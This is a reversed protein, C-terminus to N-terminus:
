AFSPTTDSVVNGNVIWNTGDCVLSVYTGGAPTVVTLTVHSSGNPYVAGIEDSAAGANLDAWVVGGKLFPAPSTFVWNQADAAVAKGIFNYELGAAAAPLTLTCSATLDPLIHTKGSDAALVTYTAADTVSVVGRTGAAAANLQAATATIGIGNYDGDVLARLFATLARFDGHFVSQLLAKADSITLSM